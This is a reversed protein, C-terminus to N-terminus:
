SLVSRRRRAPPRRFVAVAELHQSYIFQDVPTVRGIAYGGRLLIAADRALSAPNCSVAVVTPVSSAALQEAQAEAGARPPDFVVADYAGLDAPALPRRFLDRAEVTVPRLGPAADGAARRLAQLPRPDLDVAHVTATEALRLAFPGVGCFLDLVRRAPGVAQLIAAALVAEGAETPQLFSGPPLHVAARGVALVPPRAEIVTAGHNSVRALRHADATAVVARTVAEDLPGCGRLDIDLGAPTATALIDLPKGTPALAAALARAAPLAGDLAPALIPCAAIALLDHSRAQMFGVNPSREVLLNVGRAARAHLTTRRRGAGHAPVLPGVEATVKAMSLATVLLDRKWGAYGPIALSQIACGGCRGYYPCIPAVRDPSARVRDVVRGREGEVEALVREGPLADPLYVPGAPGQAVGEGRQGLRIVDLTVLGTM